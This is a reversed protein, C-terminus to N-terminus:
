FPLQFKENLLLPSLFLPLRPVQNKRESAGSSSLQRICYVPCYYSLLPEALNGKKAVSFDSQEQKSQSDHWWSVLEGDTGLGSM